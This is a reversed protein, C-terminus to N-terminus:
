IVMRSCFAMDGMGVETGDKLGLAAFLFGDLVRM